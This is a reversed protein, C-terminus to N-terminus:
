AHPSSITWQFLKLGIISLFIVFLVVLTTRWSESRARRVEESVEGKQIKYYENDIYNSIMDAILLLLLAILIIFYLLGSQANTDNISFYDELVSSIQFFILPVSYDIKFLTYPILFIAFALCCLGSFLCIIGIVFLRHHKSYRDFEMDVFEKIGTINLM